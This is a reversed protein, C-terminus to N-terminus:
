QITWPPGIPFVARATMPIGSTFLSLLGTRSHYTYDVEVGIQDYQGGAFTGDHRSCSDWNGGAKVFSAGNWKYTNVDDTPSGGPNARFILVQVGTMDVSAHQLGTQVTALITPDVTTESLTNPCKGQTGYNGMAAASRAAERSAAEVTLDASFALGFEVVGGVMLLLVPLIIALEVLSQGREHNTDRSRRLVRM